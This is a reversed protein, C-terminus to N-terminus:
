YDGSRWGGSPQDDSNGKQPARGGLRECGAVYWLMAAFFLVTILLYILDWM